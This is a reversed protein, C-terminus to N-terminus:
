VEMAIQASVPQGSMRCTASYGNATLWFLPATSLLNRLLRTNLTILQSLARLRDVGTLRTTAAEYKSLLMLQERVSAEHAPADISILVSHKANELRLLEEVLGDM